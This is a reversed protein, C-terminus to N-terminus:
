ERPCVIRPITTREPLSRREFLPSEGISLNNRRMIAAETTARTAPGAAAAVSEHFPVNLRSSPVVGGMTFWPVPTAVM